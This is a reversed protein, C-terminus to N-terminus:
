EGLVGKRKISRTDGEGGFEVGCANGVGGNVIAPFVVEVDLKLVGVVDVEGGDDNGRMRINKGRRRRGVGAFNEPVVVRWVDVCEKADGEIWTGAVTGCGESRHM